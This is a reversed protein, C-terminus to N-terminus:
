SASRRELELAALRRYLTARGIGLLKAAKGVSGNTVKLAGEIAHRELDRLPLVRGASVPEADSASDRERSEAQLRRVSDVLERREAARRVAHLVLQRDWPKTVYDYAGAQLAEAAAALEGQGVGVVIPLDADRAQLQRVVDIGRLDPLDLDVLYLSPQHGNGQVGTAGTAYEVVRHGADLLISRAEARRAADAVVLAVLTVHRSQTDEPSTDAHTTMPM